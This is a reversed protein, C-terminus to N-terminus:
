QCVQGVLLRLRLRLRVAREQNKNQKGCLKSSKTDATAYVRPVSPSYILLSTSSGNRM